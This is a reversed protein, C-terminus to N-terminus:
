TATAYYVKPMKWHGAKVIIANFGLEKIELMFANEL